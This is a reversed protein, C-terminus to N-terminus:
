EEAGERKELFEQAAEFPSVAKGEEDGVRRLRNDFRFGKGELSLPLGDETTKREDRKKALEEFDVGFEKELKEKHAKEIREIRSRTEGAVDAAHDWVSKSKDRSALAIARSAGESDLGEVKSMLDNELRLRFLTSQGQELEELKKDLGTSSLAKTVVQLLREDSLKLDVDRDGQSPTPKVPPETTQPKRKLQGSNDIIEQDMLDRVVGAANEYNNLLTEADMGYAEAKKLFAAARQSNQTMSAQEKVMQAVQEASFVKEEGDVVVKLSDGGGGPAGGSGGSGDDKEWLVRYGNRRM